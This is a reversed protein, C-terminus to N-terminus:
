ACGNGIRRIKTRVRHCNACVLDCKALEKEILERSYHHAFMSGINYEKVTGRRHDFDMCCTPFTGGCDQCPHAKLELMWVKLAIAKPGFERSYGDIAYRRERWARTNANLRERNDVAWQLLRCKKSCYRKGRRIPFEAGCRDCYSM